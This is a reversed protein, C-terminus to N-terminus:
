RQWRGRLEGAPDVVRAARAEEDIRVRAAERDAEAQAAAQSAAGDARAKVWGVVLAGILAGAGLLWGWVKSPIAALWIPM